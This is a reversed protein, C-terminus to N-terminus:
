PSRASGSQEEFMCFIRPGRWGPSVAPRHVASSGLHFPRRDARRDGSRDARPAGPEPRGGAAPGGAPLRPGRRGRRVVVPDPRRRQEVATAGRRPRPGAVREVGGHRRPRVAGGVAPGAVAAAAVVHGQVAPRRGAARGGARAARADGPLRARRPPAVHQAPPGAM